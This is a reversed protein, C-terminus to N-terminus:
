TNELCMQKLLISALEIFTVRRFPTTKVLFVFFVYNKLIKGHNTILSRLYEWLLVTVEWNCPSFGCSITFLALSGSSLSLVTVRHWIVDLFTLPIVPTLAVRIFPIFPNWKVVIFPIFRVTFSPFSTFENFLDKRDRSVQLKPVRPTLNLTLKM